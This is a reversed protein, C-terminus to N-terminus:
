KLKTLLMKLQSKKFKEVKTTIKGSQKKIFVAKKVGSEEKVVNKEGKLREVQKEEKVSEEAKVRRERYGAVADVLKGLAYATM